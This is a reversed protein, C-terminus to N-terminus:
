NRPGASANWLWATLRDVLQPRNTCIIQQNPPLCIVLQSGCAPGNVVCAHTSNAAIQYFGRQIATDCDGDVEYKWGVIRSSPFLRPIESIVKRAPSLVIKLQECNSPIKGDSRATGSADVIQVVQFDCLAAVHLVADFSGSQSWLQLRNELDENTTFRETIVPPRPNRFTSLEGKLCVIEADRAALHDALTVGLEGTSFNTLRRVKDIPEYSPGCTILVRM